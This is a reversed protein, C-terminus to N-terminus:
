MNQKTRKGQGCNDVCDQLHSTKLLSFDFFHIASYHKYAAAYCDMTSKNVKKCHVKYWEEYLNNFKIHKTTSTIDNRLIPLYLLAEKKTKFGRKSRTKRHLKGSESDCVYGLSIVARYTGNSEKYVSGEGNARNKPTHTTNQKVGCHNCYNSGEPIEKKCKRCNM